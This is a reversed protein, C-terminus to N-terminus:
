AVTPCSANAPPPGTVHLLRAVLVGSVPLRLRCGGCQEPQAKAVSVREQLCESGRVLIYPCAVSCCQGAAPAASVGVCLSVIGRRVCARM